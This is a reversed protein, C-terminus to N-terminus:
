ETQLEKLTELVKEAHGKAKVKYWVHAIEGEPSILFTSRVVGMFMRGYLKKIQWVGYKEMVEHEPDSLLEFGLDHKEIFNNHSKISDKSVGIVMANLDSFDDVLCTFEKAELTCGSTNDKPYFYLVLWSGAYESLSVDEESQNKLTFDPARDGIQLEKTKM